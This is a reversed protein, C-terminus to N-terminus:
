CFSDVTILHYGHAKIQIEKQITNQYAEEYTLHSNPVKDDREKYCRTYCIGILVAPIWDSLFIESGRAAMIRVAMTNSPLNVAAGTWNTNIWERKKATALM